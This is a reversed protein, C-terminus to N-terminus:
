PPIICWKILIVIRDHLEEWIPRFLLFDNREMLSDVVSNLFSKAKKYKISMENNSYEICCLKYLKEIIPKIDDNYEDTHETLM